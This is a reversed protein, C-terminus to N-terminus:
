KMLGGIYKELFNIHSLNNMDSVINEKFLNTKTRLDEINSDFLYVIPKDDFDYKGFYLPNILTQINVSAFYLDNSKIIEKYKSINKRRFEKFGLTFLKDKLMKPHEIYFDKYDFCHYNISTLKSNM